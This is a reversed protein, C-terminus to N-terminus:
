SKEYIEEYYNQLNLIYKEFKFNEIINKNKEKFIKVKAAYNM